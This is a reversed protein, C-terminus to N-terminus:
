PADKQSFSDCVANKNVLFGHRGCQTPTMVPLSDRLFRHAKKFAICNECRAGIKYNVQQRKQSLKSM